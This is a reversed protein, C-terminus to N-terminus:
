RAGAHRVLGVTRLIIAPRPWGPGRNLRTEAGGDDSSNTFLGDISCDRQCFLAIYDKDSVM